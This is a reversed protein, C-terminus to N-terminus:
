NRAISDSSSSSPTPRRTRVADTIPQAEPAKPRKSTAPIRPSPYPSSSTSHKRTNVLISGDMFKGQPLNEHKPPSTVRVVVKPPAMRSSPSALPFILTSSAPSYCSPPPPLATASFSGPFHWQTQTPFPLAETEDRSSSYPNSISPEVIKDHRPNIATTPDPHPPLNLANLLADLAPDDKNTTTSSAHQEPLFFYPHPHSLPTFGYEAMDLNFHQPTPLTNLEQWAQDETTEPEM